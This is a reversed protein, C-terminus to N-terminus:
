PGNGRVRHGSRPKDHGFRPNATRVPIQYTKVQQVLNERAKASPTFVWNCDTAILQLRKLKKCSVICRLTGSTCQSNCLLFRNCSIAVSQLQNPKQQCRAVPFLSRPITLPRRGGPLPCRDTARSPLRPTSWECALCGRRESPLATGLSLDRAGLSSFSVGVGLWRRGGQAVM